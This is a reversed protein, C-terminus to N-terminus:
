LRLYIQLSRFPDKCWTSDTSIRRARRFKAVQGSAEELAWIFEDPIHFTDLLKTFKHKSFPIVVYRSSTVNINAPQSCEGFLIRLTSHAGLARKYGDHLWDELQDPNLFGQKFEPISEASAASVEFFRTRDPTFTLVTDGGRFWHTEMM